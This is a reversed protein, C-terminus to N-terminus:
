ENTLLKVSLEFYSFKDNIPIFKYALPPHSKLGITIFGLGAGGKDSLDNNELREMYYKKLEDYSKFSNITDFINKIKNVNENEILNATLVILEKDNKTIIIFNHKTGTDDQAGHIYLNQLLEVAIFFIKKTLSKPYNYSLIKEEIDSELKTITSQNIVGDYALVFEYKADTFRKLNEQFKENFFDNETLYKTNAKSM